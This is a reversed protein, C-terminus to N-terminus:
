CASVLRDEAERGMLNGKEFDRQPSLKTGLLPQSVRVRM